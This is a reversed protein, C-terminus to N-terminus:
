EDLLGMVGSILQLFHKSYTDIRANVEAVDLAGNNDRKREERKNFANKKQVIKPKRLTLDIIGLGCIAEIVTIPIGRNSLSVTKASVGQRSRGFNQRLHMNFGAEDIFVYKIQCDMEKDGM